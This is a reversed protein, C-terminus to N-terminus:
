CAFRFSRCAGYDINCESDQDRSIFSVVQNRDQDFLDYQSLLSHAYLKFTQPQFLQSWSVINGPTITGVWLDDLVFDNKDIGGHVLLLDGNVAAAAHSHRAPPEPSGEAVSMAIWEDLQLFVHPGVKSPASSLVVSPCHGHGGGCYMIYNHQISAFMNHQMPSAGSSDFTWSAVLNLPLSQGTVLAAVQTSSLASQWVSVDDIAGPFYSVSELGGRGINFDFSGFNPPRFTDSRTADLSGDIYLSMVRSSASFIVAVHHWMGDNVKTRGVLMKSGECFFCISGANFCQVIQLGMGIPGISMIAQSQTEFGAANMWFSITFESLLNVFDSVILYDFSGDFLLMHDTLSRGNRPRLNVNAIWARNSLAGGQSGGFAILRLSGRYGGRLEFSFGNELVVDLTHNFIAPLSSSQTSPLWEGTVSNLLMTSSQTIFNNDVGGTVVAFQGARAAAHFARYPVAALGAAPTLQTWTQDSLSFRWTDRFVSDRRPLNLDIGGHIIIADTFAVLVHYARPSPALVPISLQQWKKSSFSLSDTQLVLGNPNRGGFALLTDSCQDFLLALHSRQSPYGAPRHVSWRRTGTDLNYVFLSSSSSDAPHLLSEGGFILLSKHKTTYAFGFSPVPPPTGSCDYTSWNLPVPQTFLSGDSIGLYAAITSSSTSMTSDIGGHIIIIDPGLYIAAHALALPKSPHFSPLQKWVFTSHLMWVDNLVSGSADFGGYIITAIKSGPVRACSHGFRAPPAAGTVAMQQWYPSPQAYTLLWTGSSPRGSAERGGMLMSSSAAEDWVSLCSWCLGPPPLGTFTIPVHLAWQSSVLSYTWLDTFFEDKARGGYFIGLSWRSLVTGSHCYRPPMSRGQPKVEHFIPQSLLALAYPTTVILLLLSLLCAASM